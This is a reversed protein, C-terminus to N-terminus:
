KRFLERVIIERQIQSTGEYIQYIKADRMLKEVPYEAMYGYGGFVQVADTTIKMAKDAAYAKSFASQMTNGVGADVAWASQRVLLRAAEVEMAMDAIMHAIAQFKWLPKGKVMREKAYKVSEDLARQALGVAGASTPPRSRDFVQMAIMFGIGEQGLLHSAPVKVDEFIVEATDSAHQGMKHFPQGTSVGEWDRDVIFCSMGNYRNEPNTYAFVTYFNAVTAGTIFTKSGNLIYHEGEKRATTKIGAVDSGAEPETLCYSAMNGDALRGCYEQKQAENGAILIPLISLGNAGLCTGMGSCGWALEEMVIVEELLSLGMGGYKEPINLTTLGLEHAKKIVPWPYEHTRDYHEAVPAMESRAFERALDRIMTQEESLAFSMPTNTSM